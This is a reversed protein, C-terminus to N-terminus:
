RSHARARAWTPMKAQMVQFKQLESAYVAPMVAYRVLVNGLWGSTETNTPRLISPIALERSGTRVDFRRLHGPGSSSRATKRELFKNLTGPYSVIRASRVGRTRGM